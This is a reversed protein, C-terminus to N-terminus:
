LALVTVFQEGDYYDALLDRINKPTVKKALLHPHIFVTVAMGKYFNAVVPSFIPPVTLGTRFTMEPLHKHVMGLAYHRPSDLAPTYNEKYAAILKKGGGSYGTVSYCTNPYDPPMIGFKVLPQVALVFATAHCGPNTIKKTKKLLARQEPVLEPMGYVWDPHTRFATSADIVCTHPNDVLSASEKSAADPLCLFTIDSANILERRADVDKRKEPDIKLVEIDDRKALYDFIQLGTTGEQGDVFIKYTMTNIGTKYERLQHLRWYKYRFPNLPALTFLFLTWPTSPGLPRAEYSPHLGDILGTGTKIPKVWGVLLRLVAPISFFLKESSGKFERARDKIKQGCIGQTTIDIVLNWILGM